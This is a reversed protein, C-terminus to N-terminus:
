KLSKIFDEHYLPRIRGHRRYKRATMIRILRARAELWDTPEGDHRHSTKIQRGSSWYGEPENGGREILCLRHDVFGRCYDDLIDDDSHYGCPGDNLYSEEESIEEVPRGEYFNVLIQFVLSKPLKKGRNSTESVVGITNEPDGLVKYYFM